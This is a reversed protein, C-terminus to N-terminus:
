RLAALRTKALTDGQDAALKYYRRAETTSRTLGGRGEQYFEGLASQAPAYGQDAALRYLRAAERDNKVLGGRGAAHHWALSTQSAALGQAAGLKFYEVAKVPDPALGGLGQSHFAGVSQQAYPNGQDAALQYYRFAEKLNRTEQPGNYYFWGLAAQSYSDGFEAGRRYYTLAKAMSRPHNPGKEYATGITFMASGNDGQLVAAYLREAEPLNKKIGYDGTSLLGGLLAQASPLGSAASQQVLQLGTITDQKLGNQGQLYMYGIQLTAFPDGSAMAPRYLRLAEAGNVPTGSGTQYCWALFSQGLPSGRSVSAQFLAFAKAKDAVLLGNAGNIYLIGLLVQAKPDGSDALRQMAPLRQPTVIRKSFAYTSRIRWDDDTFTAIERKLMEMELDVPAAGSVNLCPPLGLKIRADGAYRGKPWTNIYLQYAECTNAVKWFVQEYDASQNSTAAPAAVVAPAAPVPPPAPRFYITGRIRNSFIPYNADPRKEGVAQTVQDFVDRHNAGVKMLEAALARAYSGDDPASAGESTGFAILTGSSASMAGFGKDLSGGGKTNWPLETRCADFVIFVAKAKSRALIDVILKMDVGYPMLDEAGDISAGVPVLYNRREGTDAASAGHGSYYLFGVANPGAARLQESLRTVEAIMQERTLDRKPQEVKFGAVTLADGVRKADDYPHRLPGLRTNYAQNGIVLGFRPEAPQAFVTGALLCWLLVVRLIM